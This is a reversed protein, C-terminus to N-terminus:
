KGQFRPDRKERFAAMAEMADRSSLARAVLDRMEAEEEESPPAYRSLIHLSRKIGALALPARSSIERALEMTFEELEEDPVLFHLLGTEYAERGELYRATLFLKKAGAPGLARIFRSLGEPPYVIGLRAPPMGMRCGEGGVRLDCAMALECGGGLAYGRIMAIVPVPCSEVAEAAFQLPGKSEIRALLERPLGSPVATLDMGASFSKDGAGRLVVCRTEGGAELGELTEALSVLMATSLANRREPRNLTLLLAEERAEVLLEEDGM